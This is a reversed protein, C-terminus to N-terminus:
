DEEKADGEADLAVVDDLRVRTGDEFILERTRANLRVAGCHETYAGGAKREDPVFYTVRVRTGRVACLASLKTDLLEREAEDLERRPSTRRATEGVAEGYGTLASFPAFQAARASMPMRPHTKPEPHPLSIIDGYRSM